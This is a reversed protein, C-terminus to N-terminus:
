QIPGMVLSIVHIFGNLCEIDPIMIEAPGVSVDGNFHTVPIDRGRVPLLYDYTKLTDLSIRLPILHNEIMLRATEQDQLFDDLDGLENIHFAPNEVNYAGSINFVGDQPALLTFPGEKKLKEKWGAKDVIKRVNSLYGLKALTDYLNEM